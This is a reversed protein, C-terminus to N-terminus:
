VLVKMKVSFQLSNFSMAYKNKGGADDLGIWSKYVSVCLSFLHNYHPRESRSDKGKNEVETLICERQM